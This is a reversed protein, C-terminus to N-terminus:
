SPIPYKETDLRLYARRIADVIDRDFDPTTLTAFIAQAIEMPETFTRMAVMTDEVIGDGCDTAHLKIM